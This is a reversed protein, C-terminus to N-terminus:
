NTIMAVEGHSIQHLNSSIDCLRIMRLTATEVTGEMGAAEVRDM